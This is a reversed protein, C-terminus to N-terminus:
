AEFEISANLQMFFQQTVLIFKWQYNRYKSLM